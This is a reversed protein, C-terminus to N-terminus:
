SKGALEEKKRKYAEWLRSSGTGCGIISQMAEDVPVDVPFVCSGKIHYIFGSTPTPGIPVFVTCTGDPHRDTVIATTLVEDGHLQVLAVESFLKREGGLLQLITDKILKYGPAVRLIRTEIVQYLFKGLRTRVVVGVAFCFLTILFIVIVDAVITKVDHRAVVIDTLPEILGTVFHFIWSFVAAIIAVPLIVILGGLLSTKLFAELNKRM